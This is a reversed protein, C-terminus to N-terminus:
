DSNEPEDTSVSLRDAPFARTATAKFSAIVRDGPTVDLKSISTQTVLAALDVDGGIDLIVRAIAEGQEIDVVEGHFRNRASTTEADPTTGPALLTVADARIALQVAPTTTPIIAQVPGVSTEVTALEGESEVITGSLVTEETEAVGTFEAYLCDFEALLHYAENTLTSGGGGPGGRQREVLAGFTEELEVIRQQSRSYSRDLANAARNISRQEDIAQLLEVDRETFEIGEEHFRADFAANLDM